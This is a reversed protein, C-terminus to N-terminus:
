DRVAFTHGSDLSSIVRALIWVMNGNLGMKPMKLTRHRRPEQRLAFNCTQCLVREWLSFYPGIRMSLSSLSAHRSIIDPHLCLMRTGSVLTRVIVTRRLSTRDDQKGNCMELYEMAQKSLCAFADKATKLTLIYPLREVINRLPLDSPQDRAGHPPRSQLHMRQLGFIMEMQCALNFAGRGAIGSRSQDVFHRGLLELTVSDIDQRSCLLNWLSARCDLQPTLHTAATQAGTSGM